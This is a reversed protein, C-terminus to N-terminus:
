LDNKKQEKPSLGMQRNVSKSVLAAHHRGTSETALQSKLRLREEDFAAKVEAAYANFHENIINDVYSAISIKGKGVISVFKTVREHIDESIGVHRGYRATFGANAMFKGVYQEAREKEMRDIPEFEGVDYNEYAADEDFCEEKDSITSSTRDQFTEELCADIQKGAEEMTEEYNRMFAEYLEKADTSTLQGKGCNKTKDAM